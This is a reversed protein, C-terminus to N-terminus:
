QSILFTVVVSISVQQEAEFIPTPAAVDAAFREFTVPRPVVFHELSVLKVGIIQQGLPELAMEAKMKADKVAEGILQDSLKKKLDDSLTFFLSNVRNAGAGVATDIIEGAMELKDTKVTVINSTRYGTVFQRTKDYIPSVSFSSTSIDKENIGLEKVANVVANMRQANEQTAQSATSAQTELGFSIVLQNPDTSTSASGSVTIVNQRIGIIPSYQGYAELENNILSTEPNNTYISTMAIVSLGAFIAAAIVYTTKNDAM